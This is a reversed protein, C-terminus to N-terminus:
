GSWFIALEDAMENSHVFYSPFIAVALQYATQSPIDGDDMWGGLEIADDIRMKFPKNKTENVTMLGFQFEGSFIKEFGDEFYPKVFGMHSQLKNYQESSLDYSSVLVHINQLTEAQMVLGIAWSILTGNEESKVRQSFKLSEGLIAIARNFDISQIALRSEVLLLRNGNFLAAHPFHDLMSEITPLKFYPKENSKRIDSILQMGEELLKQADSSDWNKHQAYDRLRDDAEYDEFSQYEVDSTYNLFKYGNDNDPVDILVSLLAKDDFSDKDISGYGIWLAVACFFVIFYKFVQKITKM